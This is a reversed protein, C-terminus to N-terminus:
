SKRLFYVVSSYEGSSKAKFNSIFGTLFAKFPNTRGSRYKESLLSVYYSDFPLGKESIIQFGFESFIKGISSRSFHYLHRPVDFAAWHEKYVKADYSNFNPVAIVLLGEKKLLRYLENIQVELDPVHELVHWLSIVDFKQDKFSATDERLSIDKKFALERAKLNPEAGFVNWGKKNAEALFDGTGAGIDLLNGRGEKEQELWNLKKQLMFSKVRQYVKEFVTNKSDTHSIYKESKYFEPLNEKEPKPFTSLLDLKVDRRLEFFKHSVTYDKCVFVPTESFEFSPLRKM